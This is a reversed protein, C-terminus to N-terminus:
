DSAAGFRETIFAQQKSGMKCWLIALPRDGKGRLRRQLADTDLRLGRPKIEVIGGGVAAIAAAIDRERGPVTQLIRFCRAFPTDVPHDASLWDLGVAIRWAPTGRDSLLAALDDTADAAIVAPDPELIWKGPTAPASRQAAGAPLSISQPDMADGFVLTAQRPSPLDVGWWILLQKCTTDESVYEIQVNSWAAIEDIPLAPSLKMAGARTIQPLAALFEASPECDALSVTRRGSPRRDPDILVVAKRPLDLATVDAVNVTCRDAVHAATVNHAACLVAQPSRDFAEVTAGAAALGSTNAGLGCCLDWIPDAGAAAALRRGVYIAIRISSAQQLLPDTGLLRAAWEPPFKGSEAARRRIDRVEMVAAAQPADCMKRLATVAALRDEPLPAALLAEGALSRCFELQEVSLSM